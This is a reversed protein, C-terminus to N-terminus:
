QAFLLRQAVFPKFFQDDVACFISRKDPVFAPWACPASLRTARKFWASVDQNAKISLKESCVTQSPKIDVAFPRGIFDVMYVAVSAVVSNAIEPYRTAGSVRAIFWHSFIVLSARFANQIEFIPASVVDSEIQVFRSVVEPREGGKILCLNHCYFFAFFRVSLKKSLM